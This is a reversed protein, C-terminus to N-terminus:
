RNERLFQYFLLPPFIDSFLLENPITLAPDNARDGSPVRARKFREDTVFMFVDDPPCALIEARGAVLVALQDRDIGGVLTEQDALVLLLPVQEEFGGEKKGGDQLNDSCM